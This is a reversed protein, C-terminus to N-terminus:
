GRLSAPIIVRPTGVILPSQATSSSTATAMVPISTTITSSTIMTTTSIMSEHATSHQTSSHHHHPQRVATRSRTQMPINEIEVDEDNGFDVAEEAEESAAEGGTDGVDTKTPAISYRRHPREGFIREQLFPPLQNHKNSIYNVPDDEPQISRSYAQMKGYMDERESENKPQGNTGGNATAAAKVEALMSNMQGTFQLAYLYTYLIM